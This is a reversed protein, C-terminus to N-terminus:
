ASVTQRSARLPVRWVLVDRGVIWTAAMMAFGGAAALGPVDALYALIALASGVQTYVAPRWNTPQAIMLVVALVDALFFFREHMRPLLGPVILTCLLAAAILQAGHEGAVRRHLTAVYSVAAILALATAVPTVAVLGDGAAVRVIMWINPANLAIDPSWATQRFYITLLDGAPWGAAWAPFLMAVTGLPALLWLRVPVHRAIALTVFFPAVFAAQLKFAVAVGCLALMTGHRREVAAALALLIVASWYGDCQNLVASNLFITPMLAFMAAARAPRMTGLARLLRWAALCLAVLGGLSVLKIADYASTMEVLSSAAALLYLYPPSYNSFPTGFAGVPGKAVIHGM